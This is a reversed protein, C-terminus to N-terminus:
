HCISETNRDSTGSSHKPRVATASREKAGNTSSVGSLLEEMSSVARRRAEYKLWAKDVPAPYDRVTITSSM